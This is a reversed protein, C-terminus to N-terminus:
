PRHGPCPARPRRDIRGDECPVVGLKEAVQHQGRHGLRLAARGLQQLGLHPLHGDSGTGGGNQRHARDVLQDGLQGPQGPIPRFVAWRSM